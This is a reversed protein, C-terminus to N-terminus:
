QRYVTHILRDRGMEVVFDGTLLKKETGDYYSVFSNSIAYRGDWRADWINLSCLRYEGRLVVQNKSLAGQIIGRTNDLFDGICREAKPVIPCVRNSPPVDEIVAQAFTEPGFGTFDFASCVKICDLFAAGVYYSVVRIPTYADPDLIRAIASRWRAAGKEPTLQTLASLEVYNASGEIQEIRSEYDYERPFLEAWKKRLALLEPFASVNKKVLIDEMVAAEALKRSINEASYKYNFLADMENAWRSEGRTEQFAHFMEHVLSATLEDLDRPEETLKWIAIQEGDYEISTNAAFSATKDVYRGGFYCKADNYLAFRFPSFGKWLAPFDVRDLRKEVEQYVDHLTVIM